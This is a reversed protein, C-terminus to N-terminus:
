VRATSIAILSAPLPIGGEDMWLLDCGPDIGSHIVALRGRWMDPHAGPAAAARAELPPDLKSIYFALPARHTGNSYHLREPVVLTTLGYGPPPEPWTTQVFDYNPCNEGPTRLTRTHPPTWVSNADCNGLSFTTGCIGLLAWLGHRLGASGGAEPVAAAGPPRDALPSLGLQQLPPPLLLRM